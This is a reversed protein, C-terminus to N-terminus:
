EDNEPRADKGKKGQQGPPVGHPNGGGHKNQADIARQIGKRAAPPVRDLLNEMHALHKSARSAVDELKQTQYSTLDTRSKASDLSANLGQEVITAYAHTMISMRDEAARPNTARVGESLRDALDNFRGAEDIPDNHDRLWSGNALLAEVIERDTPELRSQRFRDSLDTARQTYVAQRQPLESLESLLVNWNVLDPLLSEDARAENGLEGPANALWVGIGVSLAVFVAAAWRPMVLCHAWWSRRNPPKAPSGSEIAMQSLLISRAESASIVPAPVPLARAATDLRRLKELLAQCTACRSVHEILGSPLGDSPDFGASALLEDQAQECKM